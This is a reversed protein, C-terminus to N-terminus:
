LYNEGIFRLPEDTGPYKINNDECYKNLAVQYFPWANTDSRPDDISGLVIRLIDMKLEHFRGLYNNEHSVTWWGPKDIKNYFTICHTSNRVMDAILDSSGKLVISITDRAIDLNPTQWLRIEVYGTDKHAKLISPRLIEYKTQANKAEKLTEAFFERDRDVTPGAIIVPVTFIASEVTPNDLTGFTFRSTDTANAFYVCANSEFTMVKETECSFFAALILFGAIIGKIKM